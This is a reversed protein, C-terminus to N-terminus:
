LLEVGFRRLMLGLACVPLGMVNFFDGEIREVFLSALGQYGYAGAKDLPEGTAIYARIEEPSLPRFHVQTCESRSLSTEGQRVCVGTWVRHARGSLRSLMEEAREPTGPKGLLEGDLEVVTDAAIVVADCGSVCKNVTAPDRVDGLTFELWPEKAEHYDFPAIDLVRIHEVGKTRLHRILNIGLFGSGGTVLVTKMEKDM